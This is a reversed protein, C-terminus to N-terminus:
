IGIYDREAAFLACSFEQSAAAVNGRGAAAAEAQGAGAASAGSAAQTGGAGCVVRQSKTGNGRENPAHFAAAAAEGAAGFRRGSTAGVRATTAALTAYVADQLEAGAGGQDLQVVRVCLIFGDPWKGRASPALGPLASLPWEAAADIGNLLEGYGASSSAAAADRAHWANWTGAAKGAFAEVHGGHGVLLPVASGGLFGADSHPLGHLM